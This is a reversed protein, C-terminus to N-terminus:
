KVPGAAPRLAALLQAESIPKQLVVAAKGPALPLVAYGSTVVVRVGQDHLREILSDAREGGRLNFDVLAVDPPQEAAEGAQGGAKVTQILLILNAVSFGLILLGSGVRKRDKIATKIPVSM